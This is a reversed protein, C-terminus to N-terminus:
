LVREPLNIEKVTMVVADQTIICYDFGFPFPIECGDEKNLYIKETIWLKANYLSHHIKRMSDIGNVDIVIATYCDLTIDTEFLTLNM